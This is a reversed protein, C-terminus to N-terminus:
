FRYRYVLICLIMHHTGRSNLGIFGLQGTRHRRKADNVLRTLKSARVHPKAEALPNECESETHKNDAKKSLPSVNLSIAKRKRSM